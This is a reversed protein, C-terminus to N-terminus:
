VCAYSHRITRVVRWGSVSLKWCYRYERPRRVWCLGLVSFMQRNKRTERVSKTWVHSDFVSGVVIMVIRHRRAESVSGMFVIVM